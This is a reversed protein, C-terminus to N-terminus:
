HHSEIDRCDKATYKLLLKALGLTMGPCLVALEKAGNVQQAEDALQHLHSYGNQHLCDGFQGFNHGDSCSSCDLKKLWKVILPYSRAPMEKPEPIYPPQNHFPTIPSPHPPYMGYYPHTLYHSTLYYYPLHLYPHHGYLPDTYSNPVVTPIPPMSAPIAAFAPATDLDLVPAGAPATTPVV